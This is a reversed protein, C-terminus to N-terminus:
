FPPPDASRVYGTPSTWKSIEGPPRHVQWRTRHKVTHHKRCLHALNDASTAGGDVWATVHDIDCQTSRRGCGPFTCTVDRLALWRKLARTPRYQTRDMDLVVGTVPHTLLRTFSPAAVCLRRATKLDIPGVGELVAPEDSKGLLAMVPVTLAVTVRAGGVEEGTLLDAFVDARLQQMTRTEDDARLLDFALADIRAQALAVKESSLHASVWGMGDRDHESWVGRNQVARGHREVATERFLRERVARAKVRFRAPALAKAPELLQEDFPGWFEAPLDAVLSAAERANQTPVEGEGFWVWIRPLRERLKAGIDAQTRVTAEALNLRVALDATAARVAFEVADRATLHETNVFVEPHLRAERLSSDLARFM